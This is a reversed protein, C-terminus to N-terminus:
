HLLEKVHSQNRLCLGIPAPSLIEGLLLLHPKTCLMGIAIKLALKLTIICYVFKDFLM